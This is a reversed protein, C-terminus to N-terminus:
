FDNSILGGAFKTHTKQADEFCVVRRRNKAQKEGDSTCDMGGHDPFCTDKANEQADKFCGVIMARM